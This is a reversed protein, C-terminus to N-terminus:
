LLDVGLQARCGSLLLYHNRNAQVSASSTWARYEHQAAPSAVAADIHVFIARQNLERAIVHVTLWGSM